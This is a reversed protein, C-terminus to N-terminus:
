DGTPRARFRGGLLYHAFKFTELVSLVASKRDMWWQAKLRDEPPSTVMFEVDPITDSFILKARRSHYPSTVLIIRKAMGGSRTSLFDRLAEAEEATSIHGDGFRALASGPVGLHILLRQQLEGSRPIDIGMEKLATDYRSSPRVYANSLLVTPALGQKYLEAAKFFRFRNGALPVIYNAKTPHDQVQLIRPLVPLALLALVFGIVTLLGIFQLIARTIRRLLSM